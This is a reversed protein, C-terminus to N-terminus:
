LTMGGPLRDCVRGIGRGASRGDRRHFARRERDVYGRRVGHERRDCRRQEDLRRRHAGGHRGDAATAAAPQRHGANFADLFGSNDVTYVVGDAVSTSEYHLGGAVPSLWNVAGGDRSLSFISGGPTSVGDIARGDFAPSAANCAQCPGGVNQTWAPAMTDAHAVHYAGAKQLDGVLENGASDTFLNAAAGFDLDLQGCVPDDFPYPLNANDSTACAPTQSVAQLASAYQDVNGPYAAVIQGLM